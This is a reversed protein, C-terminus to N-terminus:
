MISIVSFYGNKSVYIYICIYICVCVCVYIYLIYIYLDSQFDRIYVEFSLKQCRFDSQPVTNESLYRYIDIDVCPHKLCFIMMHCWKLFRWKKCPRCCLFRDLLRHIFHTGPNGPYISCISFCIFWYSYKYVYLPWVLFLLVLLLVCFLWYIFSYTFLYIHIYVYVSIMHYSLLACM